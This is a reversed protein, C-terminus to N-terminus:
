AKERGKIDLSWALESLKSTSIKPASVPAAASTEKEKKEKQAREKEQERRWIFLRPRVTYLFANKLILPLPQGGIKLFALSLALAAIFASFPFFLYSQLFFRFFVIIVAGTGLYLFQKVTFPGIVRDEVTLFQPVQFQKM